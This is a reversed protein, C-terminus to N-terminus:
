RGTHLQAVLDETRQILAATKGHHRILEAREVVVETASGLGAGTQFFRRVVSGQAIVMSGSAWRLVRKPPDYWVAPVSTTKAGPTRVTLSFSVACSGSPLTRSEPEAVIQGVLLALNVGTEVPADDVQPARPQTASDDPTIPPSSASVKTGM